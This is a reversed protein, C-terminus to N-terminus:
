TLRTNWKRWWRMNQHGSLIRVQSGLILTKHTAAVGCPMRDSFCSEFRRGRADLALLCGGNDEWIDPAARDILASRELSLQVVRYKVGLRVLSNGCCWKHFCFSEFRCAAFLGSKCDPSGVLQEISGDSVLILNSSM